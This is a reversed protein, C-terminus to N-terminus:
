CRRGDNLCTVVAAMQRDTMVDVFGAHDTDPNHKQEEFADLAIPVGPAVDYAAEIRLQPVPFTGPPCVGDAAPFVVHTRHGFSDTDLGNWCSPFDLRRLTRSGDPCRPYQMTFRGPFGSCGWQAHAHATGVTGAVADGTLMRLFRPMPVVASAPNGLYQVTVSIPDLIQGINGHDAGSEAGAPGPRDQRRLVPWYYTSRDGNRCTTPARALSKDTSFATTSLNGVYDHTHHAGQALGPSVVVNDANRHKEQNRGCDETVTGRSAGPGPVPEAAVPVKRIDTFDRPFPGVESASVASAGAAQETGGANIFVLAAM